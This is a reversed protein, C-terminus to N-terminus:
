EVCWPPLDALNLVHEEPVELADILEALETMSGTPEANADAWEM